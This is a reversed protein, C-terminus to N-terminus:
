HIGPIFSGGGTYALHTGATPTFSVTGLGRIIETAMHEFASFRDSSMSPTLLITSSLPIVVGPSTLFGQTVPLLAQWGQVALNMATSLLSLAAAASTVQDLGVLSLTRGATTLVSCSVPGNLPDPTPPTSPSFALWTCVVTANIEVYNCVANWLLDVSGIHSTLGNVSGMLSSAMSTPEIM